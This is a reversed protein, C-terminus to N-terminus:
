PPSKRWQMEGSRSSEGEPSGGPRGDKWYEQLVVSLKLNPERPQDLEYARDILSVAASAM